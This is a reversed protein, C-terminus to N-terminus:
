RTATEVSVPIPKPVIFGAILLSVPLIITALTASYHNSEKFPGGVAYIFIAYLLTSVIVQTTAPPQSSQRTAFFMYILNAALLVGFVVWYQSVSLKDSKSGTADGVFSNLTLFITVFETPVYKVIRTLYGDAPTPAGAVSNIRRDGTLRTRTTIAAM